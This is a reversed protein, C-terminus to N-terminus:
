WVNSHTRLGIAIPTKDRIRMLAANNRRRLTPHAEWNQQALDGQFRTLQASKRGGPSERIVEATSFHIALPM